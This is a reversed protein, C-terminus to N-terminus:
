RTDGSGIAAARHESQFRALFPSAMVADFAVGHGISSWHADRVFEIREGTRRHHAFFFRTSTSPTTAWHPPRRWCPGACGTSTAAPPLRRSKRTACGTSSSCSARRRCAAYSPLDRFFADLPRSRVASGSRAPTSRPIAPMAPNPWGAPRVLLQKLSSWAAGAQLNFILYRGLASSVAIRGRLSPRYEFLRLRLQQNADPAYRWFGPYTAYASHSEDFDNGVVNIILAEGRLGAGCAAGLDPIPQTASRCRRFQLRAGQRRPSQRPPGAAHRSIAGDGGRDDLRRRRGAAAAPQGQLYDQDNVFGANNVHGRNALVFDWERSYVFDRNPTFRFVPSQPTVALTHLSSAVPLFRLTVEAALLCVVVAVAATLANLMLERRKHGAGPESALRMRMQGIFKPKRKEMFATRGEIYDQSAFCRAVLDAVLKLNRESEPKLAEIASQKVAAITLPANEAITGAYEKVFSGLEAEPLVRNVVGM